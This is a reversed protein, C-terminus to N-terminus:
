PPKRRLALRILAIISILMWATEVVTLGLQKIRLAIVSLIAAGILNLLLYALSDPRLKGVQQGAFAILIMVAAALSIIQELM